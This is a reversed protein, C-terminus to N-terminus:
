DTGWFGLCSADLRNVLKSNTWFRTKTGWRVRLRRLLPQLASLHFVAIALDQHGIELLNEKKGRLLEEAQFNEMKLIELMNLAMKLLLHVM